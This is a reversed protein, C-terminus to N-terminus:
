GEHRRSHGGHGRPIVVIAKFVNELMDLEVPLGGDHTGAVRWVRATDEEESDVERGVVWELGGLDVKGGSDVM